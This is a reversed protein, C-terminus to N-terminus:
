TGERSRGKLKSQPLAKEMALGAQSLFIELSVTDGISKEEPLNDGYLMAVVKGDSVIPGIFVEAPIGGGLKGLLYRIWSNDDPRKKLSGQTEIVQTFLSSEGRPIKLNRVVSDPLRNIGFQGLGVMAEKKVSFIVARNMFESAFRLVLLIIGGGLAPDNLEKLMGKLLSIGTSPVVPGALLLPDEGM